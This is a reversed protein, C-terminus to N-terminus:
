FSKSTFIDINLKSSYLLLYEFFILFNRKTNCLHVLKLQQHYQQNQQQYYLMWKLEYCFYCSFCVSITINVRSIDSNFRIRVQDDFQTIEVAGPAVVNAIVLIFSCIATTGRDVRALVFSNYYNFDPNLHIM